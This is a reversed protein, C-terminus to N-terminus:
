HLFLSSTHYVVCSLLLACGIYFLAVRGTWKFSHSERFTTVLAMVCPINFTCAFIFALAEAKSVAAGMSAALMSSDVATKNANFAIDAVSGQSIFLANLVGLVAEKAFASSLFAVFTRWSMGFIRTVPEIVTGIKYLLSDEVYGTSTYSFVWFILSILLVTRLARKFIDFAKYFAERIIHKWHAKHYPPLEMIMGTRSEKPALTNGFVRSVFWM